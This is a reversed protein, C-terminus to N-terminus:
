LILTAGSLVLSIMQDLDTSVNSEVYPIHARLFGEAAVLAPDASSSGDTNDGLGKLSYIYSIMKSMVADKVFGDVYYLTLEDAGVKLVKKIIDFNEDIRLIGDVLRVNDFYDNGLRCKKEM